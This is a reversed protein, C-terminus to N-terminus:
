DPWQGAKGTWAPEKPAFALGGRSDSSLGPPLVAWGDRPVRATLELWRVSDAGSGARSTGELPKWLPARGRWASATFESSPDPWLFAVSTGRVSQARLQTKELRWGRGRNGWRCAFSFTRLHRRERMFPPQNPRWLLCCSHCPCGRYIDGSVSDSLRCWVSSGKIGSISPLVPNNTCPPPWDVQGQPSTQPCAVHTEWRPSICGAAGWM